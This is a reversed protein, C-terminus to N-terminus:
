GFVRLGGQSSLGPCQATRYQSYCLSLQVSGAILMCNLTMFSLVIQTSGEFLVNFTMISCSLAVLGVLSRRSVLTPLSLKWDAFALSVHPDSILVLSPRHKCQAHKKCIGQSITHM